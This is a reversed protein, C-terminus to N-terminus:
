QSNTHWRYARRFGADEAEQCTLAFFEGPANIKCSDYQQDFPLHYIYTPNGQEDRNINCKICPYNGAPLNEVVIVGLYKAFDKATDSVEINTILVARVETQPINNEYCYCITTGYLQNIHKERIVKHKGWYKCQIILTTNNKKAIIDRGLDELGKDAGFYEVAYGEQSCKYGVYMEYDRGVQWSTRRHAQLYRDLALQNREVNSLAQYEEKTLFNRVSDHHGTEIDSITIDQVGHYDAELFDELGPFMQIAYALQYEAEKSSAIAEQTQKRIERISAVKNQRAVNAGWDLSSALMELNRTKFDAIIGAMYPIATLNSTAKQLIEELDKRVEQYRRDAEEQKSRCYEDTKERAAVCELVTREPLSAAYQDAELCKQRHYSNAEACRSAYYNDAEEHKDKCYKETEEKKKEFYQDVDISTARISYASLNTGTYKRSKSIYSYRQQEFKLREETKKIEMKLMDLEKILKNKAEKCYQDVQQKESEASISAGSIGALTSFFFAGFVLILLTGVIDLRTADDPLACVYTFILIASTVASAVIYSKKM